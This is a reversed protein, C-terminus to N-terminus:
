LKGTPKCADPALRPTLEPATVGEDTPRGENTIAVYLPRPGVPTSIVPTVGAEGGAGVARCQAFLTASGDGAPVVGPYVTLRVAIVDYFALLKSREFDGVARIGPRGSTAIRIWVCTVDNVAAAPDGVTGTVYFNDLTEDGLSFWTYLEPASVVQIQGRVVVTVTDGTPTIITGIPKVTGVPM